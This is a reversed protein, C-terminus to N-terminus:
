FLCTPRVTGGEEIRAREHKSIQQACDRMENLWAVLDSFLLENEGITLRDVVKLIQTSEPVPTEPGTAKLMFPTWKPIEGRVVREDM